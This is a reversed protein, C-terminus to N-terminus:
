RQGSLGGIDDLGEFGCLFRFLPECFFFFSCFFFM